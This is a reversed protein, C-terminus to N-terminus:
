LGYGIYETGVKVLTKDVTFELIRKRRSLIRKPYKQIWKWIAVHSRKVKNLFFLLKSAGRTSLGLIYL